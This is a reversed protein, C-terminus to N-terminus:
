QENPDSRDGGVDAHSHQWKRWFFQEFQFALQENIKGYTLQSFRANKCHPENFRCESLFLKGRKEFYVTQPGNILIETVDGDDLLPVVPGLFHRVTAEYIDKTQM